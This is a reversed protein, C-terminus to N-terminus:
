TGDRLLYDAIVPGAVGSYLDGNSFRMVTEGELKEGKITGSVVKALTYQGDATKYVNYVDFDTNAGLILEKDIYFRNDHLLAQLKERLSKEEQWQQVRDELPYFLTLGAVIIIVLLFLKKSKVFLPINGM